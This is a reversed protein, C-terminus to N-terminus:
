GSRARGTDYARGELAQVAHFLDLGINGVVMDAYSEVFTTGVTASQFFSNFAGAVIDCRHAALGLVVTFGLGGDFFSVQALGALPQPDGAYGGRQDHEQHYRVHEPLRNGAVQGDDGQEGKRHYKEM